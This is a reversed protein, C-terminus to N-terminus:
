EQVTITGRVGYGETWFTYTAVEDFYHEFTDGRKLLNSNFIAPTKGKQVQVVVAKGKPDDNKWQVYTGRKVTVESPNFGEAGLISVGTDALQSTEAASNTDAVAAGQLPAPTPQAQPTVQKTCGVVLLLAMLLVSLMALRNM